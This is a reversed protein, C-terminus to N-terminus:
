RQKKMVLYYTIFGLAIFVVEIGYPLTSNAPDFPFLTLIILGAGGFLSIIGWKLLESNEGQQSLLEKIANADMLNSDIIRKKLLFNFLNIILVAIVIFLIIAVIHSSKM